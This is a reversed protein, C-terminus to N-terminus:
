SYSRDWLDHTIDLLANGIASHIHDRVFRGITAMAKFQTDLKKRKGITM